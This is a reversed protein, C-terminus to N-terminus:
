SSYVTSNEVDMSGKGGVHWMARHSYGERMGIKGISIIFAIHFDVLEYKANKYIMLMLAYEGSATRFNGVIQIPFSFEGPIQSQSKASLQSNPLSIVQSTSQSKSSGKGLM